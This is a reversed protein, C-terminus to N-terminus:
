RSPRRGPGPSARAPAPTVATQSAHVLALGLWCEGDADRRTRRSSEVLDFPRFAELVGAGDGELLGSLVLTGGREVRAALDAVLPLLEQRLLNAVVLDFAADGLAALSGTFVDLQGDLGNARAASRAAPPALSDIDFGVARQAGLALAALALVGSGTGVDLVRAGPGAAAWTDIGELALRTSHHAGTGFAQGPDITVVRQDAAPECRAFSPAVILRSSIEIPGLHAKWAESWVVEELPEPPGAIVDCPADALAQVVRAASAAPAYVTIALGGEDEVVGSAGAEWAEAAAIEAAVPDSALVRLCM